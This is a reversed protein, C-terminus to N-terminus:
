LQVSMKEMVIDLTHFANRAVLSTCGRISLARMATHELVLENTTSKNVDMTKCKEM